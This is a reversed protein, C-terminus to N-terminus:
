ELGLLSPFSWSGYMKDENEESRRQQKKAPKYLDQKQSVVTPEDRKAQYAPSCGALTAASIVIAALGSVKHMYFM